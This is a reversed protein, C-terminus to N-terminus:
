RFDDVGLALEGGGLAQHICGMEQRGLGGTDLQSIQLRQGFNTDLFISGDHKGHRDIEEGAHLLQEGSAFRRSRRHLTLPGSSEMALDCCSVSIVRPVPRISTIKRTNTSTQAKKKEMPKESPRLVARAPVTLESLSRAPIGAAMTRGDAAFFSAVGGVGCAPSK